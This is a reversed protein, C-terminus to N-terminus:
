NSQLHANSVLSEHLRRTLSSFNMDFRTSDVKAFAKTASENQGLASLASAYILGLQNMNVEGWFGLIMLQGSAHKECLSVVAQNEGASLLYQSVFLISTIRQGLDKERVFSIVFLSILSGVVRYFILHYNVTERNLMKKWFAGSMLFFM